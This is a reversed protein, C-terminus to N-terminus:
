VIFGIRSRLTDKRSFPLSTQGLGTPAEDSEVFKVEIYPTDQDAEVSMTKGNVYLSYTPM